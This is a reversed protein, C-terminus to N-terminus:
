LYLSTMATDGADLHQSVRGYSYTNRVFIHTKLERCGDGAHALRILTRM